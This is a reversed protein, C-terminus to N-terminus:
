RRQLLLLLHRCGWGARPVMGYEADKGAPLSRQAYLRWVAGYDTWRSGWGDYPLCPPFAARYAAYNWLRGAADEMGRHIGRIIGCPSGSWNKNQLWCREWWWSAYIRGWRGYQFQRRGYLPFDTDTQKGWLYGLDSRHCVPAHDSKGCLAKELGWLDM